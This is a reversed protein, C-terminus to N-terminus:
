THAGADVRLTINHIMRGERSALFLATNAIDEPEILRRLPTAQRLREFVEEPEGWAGTGRGVTTDSIGPCIANVRINQPGLEHALSRMLGIVGHKSMTYASSHTVGYLGLGSSTFLLVAGDSGSKKASEKLAPLAAATMRLPGNLNVDLVHELLPEDISEFDGTWAIGANNFLIDVGGWRSLATEVVRQNDAVSCHDAQVFVYDHGLEAMMLQSNGVQLDVAIVRCGQAVFRRATAAGFGDAAGTIIAVKGFLRKGNNM